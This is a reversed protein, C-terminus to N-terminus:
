PQDPRETVTRDRRMRITTALLAAQDGLHELAAPDGTIHGFPGCLTGLHPDPHRHTGIPDGAFLLTTPLLTHPDEPPPADAAPRRGADWHAVAVALGAEAANLVRHTTAPAATRLTHLAARGTDALRLLRRTHM